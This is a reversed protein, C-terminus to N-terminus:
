SCNSSLLCTHYSFGDPTTIRRSLVLCLCRHDPCRQSQNGHGIVDPLMMKMFLFDVQPGDMFYTVSSPSPPGLLHSLKHCPSPSLAHSTVSVIKKIMCVLCSM